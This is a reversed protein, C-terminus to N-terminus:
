APKLAGDIVRTNAQAWVEYETLASHLRAFDFATYINHSKVHHEIQALQERFV